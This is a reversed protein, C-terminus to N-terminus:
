LRPELAPFRHDGVEVDVVVLRPEGEFSLLQAERGPDGGLELVHEATSPGNM